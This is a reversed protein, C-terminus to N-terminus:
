YVLWKFKWNFEVYLIKQNLINSNWSLWYSLEGKAIDNKGGKMKYPNLWYKKFNSHM